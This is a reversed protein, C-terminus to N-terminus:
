YPGGDAMEMHMSVNAAINDVTGIFDFSAMQQEFDKDTEPVDFMFGTCIYEAGIKSIQKPNSLDVITLSM